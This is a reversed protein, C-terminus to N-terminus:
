VGPEVALLEVDFVLTANRPIVPPSGAAGYALQSPIVLLRRGGVGMGQIWEDWGPIVRRRGLPFTFPEGRDYSNDFETGDELTGLYHVAVVDGVQPPAGDGAEIVIYQLGSATTTIDGETTKPLDTVTEATPATNATAEATPQSTPTEPGGAASSLALLLGLGIETALMWKHKM